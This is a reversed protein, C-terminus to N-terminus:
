SLLGNGTITLINFRNALTEEYVSLEDWGASICGQKLEIYCEKMIQFSSNIEDKMSIKKLSVNYQCKSSRATTNLDSDQEGAVVVNNEEEEHQLLLILCLLRPM